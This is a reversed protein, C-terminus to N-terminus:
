EKRLRGLSTDFATQLAKLDIAAQATQKSWRGMSGSADAREMRIGGGSMSLLRGAGDFTMETQPGSLGEREIVTFSGGGGFSLGGKGRVEIMKLVLAGRQHDFTSFAYTGSKSLNTLRPFWRLLLRSLYGEPLKLYPNNVMRQAFAYSQATILVDRERAGEEYAYGINAPEGDKTPELTVVSSQWSEIQLDDSLFTTGLTQHRAGDGDFSWGQDLVRVGSVGHDTFPQETVMLWGTERLGESVRYYAVPHVKDALRISAQSKRWAAGNAIAGRIARDSSEDEVVRFSGLVSEFAAVGSKDLRSDGSYTLVFYGRPRARVAAVITTLARNGQKTRLTVRSGPRGGIRPSTRDTPKQGGLQVALKQSWEDLFQESNMDRWKNHYRVIVEPPFTESGPATTQFVTEGMSGYGSRRTSFTWGKPARISYGFSPDVYAPQLEVSSFLQARATSGAPVTAACLGAALRCMARPLNRRRTM